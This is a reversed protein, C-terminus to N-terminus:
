TGLQVLIVVFTLYGAIGAIAASRGIGRSLWAIALVPVASALYWWAVAIGGAGVTGLGILAAPLLFGVVTNIANSNMAESLTAAGRGRRALYIAAVTNPLTTVAALIVGGVIVDPIRLRMGVRSISSEMAVAATIVVALSIAAVLGDRWTGPEPHIAESLEIEEEGLTDTLAKRQRRPIPLRERLRPPLASAVVYPIFVVLALALGWRPSTGGTVTAVTAAALWCAIFGELAVVRRDLQIRGALLAGLGLLVLLNFVNAGLIVGIGIDHRGQSLATFASTIEPGDAAMAAVLGLTAETFGLRAGVRELRSILLTSAGLAIGTALLFEVVLGATSNM